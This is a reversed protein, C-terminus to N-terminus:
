SLGPYISLQFAYPLQKPLHFSCWSKAQKQIISCRCCCNSSSPWSAFLIKLYNRWFFCLRSKFWWLLSRIRGLDHVTKYFYELLDEHCFARAQQRICLSPSHHIFYIFRHAHARTLVRAFINRGIAYYDWSGILKSKRRTELSRSEITRVDTYLTVVTSNMFSWCYLINIKTM